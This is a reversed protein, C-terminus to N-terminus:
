VATAARARQRTSKIELRPVAARKETPPTPYNGHSLLHPLQDLLAVSYGLLLPASTTGFLTSSEVMGHVALSALIGMPLASLEPNPSGYLEHKVENSRVAIRFLCVVFFVTGFYGCEVLVQLYLNHCNASSKGWHLWGIGIFPSPAKEFKKYAFNWMGERTNEKTGGSTIRELGPIKSVVDIGSAIAIIQVLGIPIACALVISAARKKLFPKTAIFTGVIAMLTAGRSGTGLIVVLLLLASTFAFLRWKWGRQWLGLFFSLIFMPAAAAGITNANMGAVALRNSVVGQNPNQLFTGFLFFGSVAGTICLLKIGKSLEVDNKTTYAMYVGGLAAMLYMGKNIMGWLPDNSWLAAITFVVSFAIFSKTMGRLTEAQYVFIGFGAMLITLGLRAFKIGNGADASVSLPAIVMFVAAMLYIKNPRDM